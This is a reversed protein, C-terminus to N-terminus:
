ASSVRGKRCPARRVAQSSIASPMGVVTMQSLMAALRMRRSMWATNHARVADGGVTVGGVLDAGVVDGDQGPLVADREIHGRGPGGDVEGSRGAVRDGDLLAGGDFDRVVGAFLERRVADADAIGGEVDRGCLVDGSDDGLAANEARRVAFREALHFQHALDLPGIAVSM